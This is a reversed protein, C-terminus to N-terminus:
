WCTSSKSSTSCTWWTGYVCSNMLWARLSNEGTCVIYVKSYVPCLYVYSEWWLFTKYECNGATPLFGKQLAVFFRTTEACYTETLARVWPFSTSRCPQPSRLVWNTGPLDCKQLSNEISDHKHCSQMAAKPFTECAQSNLLYDKPAVVTNLFAKCTPLQSATCGNQIPKLLQLDQRPLYSLTM